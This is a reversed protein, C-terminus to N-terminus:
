LEVERFRIPELPPMEEDIAADIAQMIADFDKLRRDIDKPIEDLLTIIAQTGEPIKGLGIPVFQGESYYAKVAQM